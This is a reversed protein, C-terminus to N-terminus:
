YDTAAADSTAASSISILRLSNCPAGVFTRHEQSQSRSNFLLEWGGCEDGASASSRRMQLSKSISSAPSSCAVEQTRNLRLRSCGPSVPMTVRARLPLVLGSHRSVGTTVSWRSVVSVVRFPGGFRAKRREITPLDAVRALHSDVWEKEYHKRLLREYEEGELAVWEGAENKKSVCVRSLAPL